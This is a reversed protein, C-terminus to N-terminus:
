SSSVGGCNRAVHANIRRSSRELRRSSFFFFFFFSSGSALCVVLKSERRPSGTALNRIQLPSQLIKTEGRVTFSFRLFSRSLLPFFKIRGTSREFNRPRVVFTGIGSASDVACVHLSLKGGSSSKESDRRDLNRATVNRKGYM